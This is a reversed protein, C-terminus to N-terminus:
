HVQKQMGAFVEGRDVRIPGFRSRYEAPTMGTHRKFLTRFFAVDEYGIATSVSQVPARGEELLERAASVRLLQLYAGPLHGTAAKFRRILNRPSMGVAACSWQSM